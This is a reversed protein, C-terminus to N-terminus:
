TQQQYYSDFFRNAICHEWIFTKFIQVGAYHMAYLHEEGFIRVCWPAHFVAKLTCHVPEPARHILEPVLLNSGICVLDAGSESATNEMKM